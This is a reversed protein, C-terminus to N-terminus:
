EYLDDFCDNCVLEDGNVSGTDRVEEFSSFEDAEQVRLCVCCFEHDDDM